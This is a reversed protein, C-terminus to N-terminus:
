FATFSNIAKALSTENAEKKGAKGQPCVAAAFVARFAGPDLKALGAAAAARFVGARKCRCLSSFRAPIVNRVVAAAAPTLFEVTM